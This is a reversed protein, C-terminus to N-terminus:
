VRACTFSECPPPPYPFSFASVCESVCLRVVIEHWLEQVRVSSILRFDAAVVSARPPPACCARVACANEKSTHRFNKLAVEGLTVKISCPEEPRGSPLPVM